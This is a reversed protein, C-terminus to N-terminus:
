VYHAEEEEKNHGQGLYIVLLEICGIRVEWHWRHELCFFLFVTCSRHRGM